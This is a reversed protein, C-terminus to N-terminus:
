LLSSGDAVPPPLAPLRSPGRVAAPPSAGEVMPPAERSIAAIAKAARGVVRALDELDAETEADKALEHLLQRRSEEARLAQKGLRRSQAVEESLALRLRAAEDALSRDLQQAKSGHSAQKAERAQACAEEETHTKQRAQACAEEESHLERKLVTIQAALTAIGVESGQGFSPTDESLRSRSVLSEKSSCRVSEKSPCRPGISLALASPSEPGEAVAAFRLPPAFSDLGRLRSPSSRGPSSQSRRASSAPSASSSEGGVECIQNKKAENGRFSPTHVMPMRGGHQMLEARMEQCERRFHLAQTLGPLEGGAEGDEAAAESAIELEFKADDLQAALEAVEIRAAGLDAM